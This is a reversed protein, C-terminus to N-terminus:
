HGVCRFHAGFLISKCSSLQSGMKSCTVEELLELGGLPDQSPRVSHSGLLWRALGHDASACHGSRSDMLLLLASSFVTPLASWRLLPKGLFSSSIKQIKDFNGGVGGGFSCCNLPVVALLVGIPLSPWSSWAFWWVSLM